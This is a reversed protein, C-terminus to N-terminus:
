VLETMCRDAGRLTGVAAEPADPGRFGAQISALLANRDADIAAPSKGLSAGAEEVRARYAANADALRRLEASDLHPFFSGVLGTLMECKMDAAYRSADVAAAPSCAAAGFASVAIVFARM